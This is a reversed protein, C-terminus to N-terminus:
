SKFEPYAPAKKGKSVIAELHEREESTLEVVYKKIM